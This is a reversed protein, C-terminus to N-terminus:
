IFVIGEWQHHSHLFRIDEWQHYSHVFESYNKVYFCYRRMSSSLTFIMQSTFPFGVQMSRIASAHCINARHQDSGQFRTQIRPGRCEEPRGAIFQPQIATSSALKLSPTIANPHKSHSALSFQSPHSYHFPFLVVSLPLSFSHSRIILSFSLLLLLFDSLRHLFIKSLWTLIM